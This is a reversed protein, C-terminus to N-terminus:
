EDRFIVSVGAPLKRGTSEPIFMEGSEFEGRGFVQAVIRELVLCSFGPSHCSLVLEFPREPDRLERCLMLLKPLDDEIKWVQGSSGRGFSPPDLAILDYKAGRRAERRVFKTVDDVIWRVKPPIAPNLELNAKGWEIMGRAADLHCVRAGGKALALSGLGSYAFLNLAERCKGGFNQFREWNAFQEAFFGLHGFGTPKVLMKLGGYEATWEPPLPNKFSWKGGGSSNRTFVADAADWEAKGLEPAWAANLAPRVLRYRGVQELKCFNGSDLLIYKDGDLVRKGGLDGDNKSFYVGNASSEIGPLARREGSACFTAPFDGRRRNCFGRCPM